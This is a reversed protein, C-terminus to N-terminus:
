HNLANLVDVIIKPDMRNKYDVDVFREVVEGKSNVIYTAALPLQNSDDGNYAELNTGFTKYLKQLKEPLTFVLGFQKAVQNGKDSLVTFSLEDKEATTLSQDPTQPSIAVLSAGAKEIAPLEKQLYHLNLNCYLCWGGRYFSIVVPGKKLLDAIAVKNGKADPLEFKPIQEGKKLASKIIGSQRLSETAESM